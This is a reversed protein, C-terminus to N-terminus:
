GVLPTAHPPEDPTPTSRAGRTVIRRWTRRGRESDALYVV